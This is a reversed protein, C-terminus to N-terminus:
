SLALKQVASSIVTRWSSMITRSRGSPSSSAESISCNVRPHRAGPSRGKGLGALEGVDALAAPNDRVNCGAGQRRGREIRRAVTVMM